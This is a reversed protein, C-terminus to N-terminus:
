SQAAAPPIETAQLWVLLWIGDVQEYFATFWLDLAYEVEDATLESRAQYRVAAFEGNAHVRLPTTPELVHNDIMGSAVGGVFTEYTQVTGLPTVFEFDEHLTAALADADHALMAAMRQMEVDEVADSKRRGMGNLPLMFGAVTAAGLAAITNRRTLARPEPATNM